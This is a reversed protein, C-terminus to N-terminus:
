SEDKINKFKVTDKWYEQAGCYISGLFGLGKQLEPYVISHGVMTDHMPGRVIIGNRTLLFPVDFMSNQVIKTSKPNGLVAQIGRWILVAEGLNWRTDTPIVCALDPSSAMSICSVEYEIVEIDFGVQPQDEFYRLWELAEEVNAYSYVLQRQPRRIDPFAAEEKVKRLDAAILYRYTYMGRMAQKPAHIPIVKRGPLLDSEFVYGRYMALHGLGCLAAFAADGAAVFVNAQVDDLEEKLSQVYEMGAGTFEFGGNNKKRFFKEPKDVREKILNTLYCEGRILGANHLCNELITGGPGSFPRMAKQDFGDTYDGVIAIKSQKSGQAPLRNMTQTSIFM